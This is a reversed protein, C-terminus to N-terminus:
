GTTRPSSSTTLWSTWDLAYAARVDEVLRAGALRGPIRDAARLRQWQAANLGLVRIDLDALAEVHDVDAGAVDLHALAPLAALDAVAVPLGSVTLDWLAPHGALASLDAERADLSLSETTEPLWLRVSGARNVSVVRVRPTASLARLDLSDADNLYLQQVDAAGPIGALVEATGRGEVLESASYRSTHWSPLGAVIGRFDGEGGRAEDDRLADLVSQLVATVSDATYGVPGHFDRGHEILQGSRGGPGPDLDVAFANGAHDSAVAVWWDNRSVRRVVGPPDAELVVRGPAFLDEAWAWSGPTDSFYDEVVTPLPQLYCRGLLGNERQDDGVLLHLARVDEPLRLGMAAEAAALEEETRVPGFEPARGNVRTFHDTFERVSSEVHRLVDPDTPLGTPRAAAPQPMGPLPHNPHRHRPDLVVSYPQGASLAFTHFFEAEGAGDVAIELVLPRDEGEARLVEELAQVLAYEAQVHEAARVSAMPDLTPFRKLSMGGSTTVAQWVTPREDGVEESVKEVLAAIRAERDGTM